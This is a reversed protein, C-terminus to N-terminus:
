GKRWALPAREPHLMQLLLVYGSDTKILDKVRERATDLTEGDRPVPYVRWDKFLTAITAVFETQSFKRGPCDRIGESWGLFAGRIPMNLDEKGAAPTATATGTINFTAAAPKVWRSPKWNLSDLGWFRPDTQVSGYSPSVMTQPPILYTKDGVKLSRAKNATLKISPVITYLRLTEFMVAHCRKLRPLDTRYDWESPPRGGFVLNIEESLWDQVGPYAALFYLAFTFTHSTTDHGAFNFTFLTGYIESETLGTSTEAEDQSARVLLTL